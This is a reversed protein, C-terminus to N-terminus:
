SVIRMEKDRVPQFKINDLYSQTFRDETSFFYLQTLKNFDADFTLNYTQSGVKLTYNNDTTIGMDFIIEVHVWEGLQYASSYYNGNAWIAGNSKLYITPGKKYASSSWDRFEILVTAPFQANNNFDFSLSCRGGEIKFNSYKLWPESGSGTADSFRIGKGCDVITTHYNPGNPSFTRTLEPMGERSSDFTETFAEQELLNAPELMPDLVQEAGSVLGSEGPERMITGNFDVYRTGYYAFVVGNVPVNGNQWDVYAVIYGNEEKIDTVTCLKTTGDAAYLSHGPAIGRVSHGGTIGSIIQEIRINSNIDFDIYNLTLPEYAVDFADVDKLINNGSIYACYHAWKNDYFAIAHKYGVPGATGWRNIINIENDYIYLKKVGVNIRHEIINNRITLTDCGTGAAIAHPQKNDASDPDPMFADGGRITCGEIVVEKLNKDVEIVGGIICNKVVTEKSGTPFINFEPFDGALDLYYVENGSIMLDDAETTAPFRNPVIKFGIIAIFDFYASYQHNLNIIRPKGARYVENGNYYYYSIYDFWNENYSYQLPKGFSIVAGNVANIKHWEVYRPNIPWGGDQQHFGYVRVEDGVAFNTAETSDNLEVSLNGSNATKIEYGTHFINDYGFTNKATEYKMDIPYYHCIDRCGFPKADRGEASSSICQLSAGYGILTLRKLGNIWTNDDYCYPKDSPLFKLVWHRTEDIAMLDNKLEVLAVSNNTVGDGKIGYKNVIITGSAALETRDFGFSFVASFLTVVVLWYLGVNKLVNKRM